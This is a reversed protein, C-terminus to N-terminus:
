ALTLMPTVAPPVFSFLQLAMIITFAWFGVRAHKEAWKHGSFARERLNQPRNKEKKAKLFAWFGVRAHKEAWKIAALFM